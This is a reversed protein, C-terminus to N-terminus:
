IEKIMVLDFDVALLAISTAGLTGVESLLAEVAIESPFSVLETIEVVVEEVAKVVVEDM